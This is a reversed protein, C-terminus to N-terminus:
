CGNNLLNAAIELDWTLSNLTSGVGGRFDLSFTITLVLSELEEVGFRYM